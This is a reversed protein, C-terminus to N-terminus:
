KYKAMIAAFEQGWEQGAAISKEALEGSKSQIKKGVPSEYFAIMAKIDEPTYVEMYIKALKDYLSPLTADFDKLFDAQKDAPIMKLIQNKVTKIQADSGSLSIVKVVDAKLAADQANMFQATLLFAFILLTKKM